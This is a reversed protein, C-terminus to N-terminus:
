CTHSGSRLPIVAAEFYMRRQFQKAALISRASSRVVLTLGVDKQFFRTFACFSRWPTLTWAGICLNLLYRRSCGDELLSEYCGALVWTIYLNVVHSSNPQECSGMHAIFIPYHRNLSHSCEGQFPLAKVPCLPERYVAPM